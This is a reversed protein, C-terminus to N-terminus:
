ITMYLNRLWDYGILTNLDSYMYLKVSTNHKRIKNEYFLSFM